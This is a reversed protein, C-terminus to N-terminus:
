CPTVPKVFELDFKFQEVIEKLKPEPKKGVYARSGDPIHKDEHGTLAAYKIDNHDAHTIFTHRFAHFGVLRKSPTEDRLELRKLQLGFWDAAKASANGKIVPWAPFMRKAGSKKLHDIYDMIGLEILKSHIPVNRISGANKTRKEVGDDAENATTICFCMVGNVEKIDSQPNLQCIENIRAGTFLGIHTLWFKHLEKTKGAFKRMEEGEFLRKLEDQKFARQGYDGSRKNGKYTIDHKTIQLSPFGQDNLRSESWSLFGGLAARYPTKLTSESLGPLGANSEIIKHLAVGKQYSAKWSRPLKQAEDFFDILDRKTLTDVPKNGVLGVFLIGVITKIKELMESKGTTSYHEVYEKVADELMLTTTTSASKTSPTDTEPSHKLVDLAKSLDQIRQNQVQLKSIHTLRDQTRAEREAEFLEKIKNKEVWQRIAQESTLGKYSGGEISDKITRQIERQREPDVADLAAIKVLDQIVEDANNKSMCRVENFITRVRAGLMLALPVAENFHQTRLTRTVERLGLIPRIDTPVTIRFYLNNGRRHLYPTKAM